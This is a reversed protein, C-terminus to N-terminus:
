QRLSNATLTHFRQRGPNRVRVYAAQVRRGPAPRRESPSARSAPWTRDSPWPRVVGRSPFLLVGGAIELLGDLGKLLVGVEFVKDLQNTATFGAVPSPTV